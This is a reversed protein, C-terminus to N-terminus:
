KDKRIREAFLFVKEKLKAVDLSSESSNKNPDDKIIEAQQNTSEHFAEPQLPGEAQVPGNGSHSYQTGLGPEYKQNSLANVDGISNSIIPQFNIVTNGGLANPFEESYNAQESTSEM